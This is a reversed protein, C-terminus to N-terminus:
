QQSAIRNGSLEVTKDIATPRVIDKGQLLDQRITEVSVTKNSSDRNLEKCALWLAYEQSGTPRIQGGKPGGPNGTRKVSERIEVFKFVLEAQLKKGSLHPILAKCILKVDQQKVIQIQHSDKWHSLKPNSGFSKSNITAQRGTIEALLAQCRLLIPMNTNVIQVIPRIHETRGKSKNESIRCLTITGEGDIIGALYGIDKDEM